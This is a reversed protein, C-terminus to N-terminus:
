RQGSGIYQQFQDTSLGYAFGEPFIAFRFGSDDNVQDHFVTFVMFFKDFRRVVSISTDQNQQTSLNVSESIRIAYKASLDYNLVASAITSNLEGIYRLGLFYAMRTDRQVAIGISSTALTFEDLNMYMDSLVATTDSMRWLADANIGNRPVSAEPLSPFFLSRFVTPVLDEERPQNAFFNGEVNLTFFDTSRWQGAGGRKTQWRQHLALQVASVDNIADVQEEYNFLDDRDKNSTSTFLHLEPEIVHRVRHIDFLDSRASDDVRWFATTVRVGTGLFLRNQADGSPSDSYPTYRGFAYPLFKFQGASFPFDVEQRFDGRYTTDDTVGTQGESPFGAPLNAPFPDQGARFGLETYSASSQKFHLGSFTNASFFTVKDDLVSDGIRYYGVEPLHEVEFQEQLQDATTVFDNPQAQVLLTLAETQRQRKLYASLDHPLGDNFEKQFWEELFTPDSILGARLQLQWDEPFFHQHQWLVHYRFEDEPEVHRREHGLRDEGHDSVFYSELDGQFNWPQKTTDTIFGGGYKADIGGAPGRDAYYDLHYQIDLDQPKAIGLSEFLGWTTRIG